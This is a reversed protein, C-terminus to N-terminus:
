DDGRYEVRDGRRQRAAIADLQPAEARERDLLAVRTNSAVRAGAVADRDALLVDGEELRSLLQAVPEVMLRSMPQGGPADRSKIQPNVRPDVSLELQNM